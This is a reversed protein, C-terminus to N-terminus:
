PPGAVSGPTISQALSKLALKLRANGEVKLRVRRSIHNYKSGGQASAGCCPLAVKRRVCKCAERAPSQKRGGGGGWFNKIIIKRARRKGWLNRM